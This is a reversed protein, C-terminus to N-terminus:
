TTMFENYSQHTRSQICAHRHFTRRSLSTQSSSFLRVLTSILICQVTEIREEQLIHHSLLSLSLLMKYIVSGPRPIVVNKGEHMYLNLGYIFEREREREVCVSLDVLLGARLHLLQPSHQRTPSRAGRGDIACCRTSPKPGPKMGGLEVTNKTRQIQPRPIVITIKGHISRMEVTERQYANETGLM